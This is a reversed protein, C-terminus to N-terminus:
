LRQDNHHPMHRHLLHTFAAAGLVPVLLNLVPITLPAVMLLGGLWVEGRHRRYLARAGSRGLRRMAAIQMYERGLLYGNVAWFILPAVPAALPYALLALANVTLLLVFFGAADLLSQWLPIRPPAPLHPYHRAEVAAAVDDLFLGTFASAVPIMLFPSLVLMVLLSGFSLLAGLGSVEGIFPLTVIDPLFLQIAGLVAAYLAILLMLTLAVGLWVVKRFRRDRLQALAKLLDGILHFIM